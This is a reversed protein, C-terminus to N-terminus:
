KTNGIGLLNSTHMGELGTSGGICKEQLFDEVFAGPFMVMANVAVSVFTALKIEAGNM